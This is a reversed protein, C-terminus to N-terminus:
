RTLTAKIGAARLKKITSDAVNKDAFTGATLKKSPISVAARKLTLSFGASTLREKESSARADLMYSGAYVVHMGASDLIFADSTHRKLKDLEAQASARVEDVKDKLLPLVFPIVQMDGINGMALMASLRVTFYEDKLADILVPIVSKNKTIGLTEAARARVIPQASALAKTLPLTASPIRALIQQYHLLLSLDQTQLSDILPPVSEAGLKILEKAAPDRKASDALQAILKKAGGNPGGTFWSM